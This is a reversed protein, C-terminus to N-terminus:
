AAPAAKVQAHGGRRELAKALRRAEAHDPELALAEAVFTAADQEFGRAIAVQALGVLAQADPSRECVVIWEDAASELFGRRLYMRALQERRERESPCAAELLPVLREFMDFEEVRLLAELATLMPALAQHSLRSPPAGSLTAHWGRYLELDGRGIEAAAEGALAAGLGEVDGSVALAFVQALTALPRVPSGAPELQAEEIAERYRRQSLLAEVLGIRAVGNAPQRDLVRRFWGEAQEPKGAEYFATALLLMASPRDAVVDAVAAEVESDGADRRIMLSALHLVPAVFDGHEDLSRRYLLEAESQRGQAARIDGLLTLALHSGSGVTAAYRAPADGLELCREALAAAEALDGEDRACLAEEFLLDTHDPFAALGEAIARRAAATDGAERRVRVVRTALLPVYPIGEWGELARVADWAEDFYRRAEEWEGLAMHESGLNFSNFPSPSEARERRLLEVNRRSKDRSVLRSKLYGYHRLRIRTTEFREPLYTPMAQTKQEHIRGEFRYSPRNRFLRLALHTVAHGSEEGGTYNTEVLYFGERWTRGLLERLQGADEPVLHEDADLYLIWDGTAHELSVNRAEAFSGTWPFRVVKAGFREAIEITSDTSGTDVVVIEDVVGRVAGLCGPLMEEEDKVIMCLSLSLGTAPGARRVLKAAKNGVVRARAALGKPLPSRGGARERRRLEALNGAVHELEPDLRAAAEFCSRAGRLEYLEYLLVGLMNLLVPESPNGDLAQVLSEAAAAYLQAWGPDGAGVALVVETLRCRAQYARQTDEWRDLGAFAAALDSYRHERCARAADAAVQDVLRRWELPSREGGVITATATRLAM